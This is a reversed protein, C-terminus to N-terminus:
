RKAMTDIISAIDAVDVSGDGNVDAATAFGSGVTGAMVDIVAAIDAVDVSGDGNVDGEVGEVMPYYYLYCDDFIDDPTTGGGSYSLRIYDEYPLFEGVENKYLGRSAAEKVGAINCPFYVTKGGLVKTISGAAYPKDSPCDFVGLHKKTTGGCQLEGTYYSVGEQCDQWTRELQANYYSALSPDDKQSISNFGVFGDHGLVYYGAPRLSYDVDFPTLKELEAKVPTAAFRPKKKCFVITRSDGQQTGNQFFYRMYDHTRSDTYFEVQPTIGHSSFDPLPEWGPEDVKVSGEIAKGHTISGLERVVEEGSPLGTIRLRAKLAPDGAWQSTVKYRLTCPSGYKVLGLADAGDLTYEINVNPIRQREVNITGEGKIVSGTTVDAVRILNKGYDLQFEYYPVLVQATGGGPVEALVNDWATFGDEGTAGVYVLGKFLQSGNNKLTLIINGCGPYTDLAWVPWDTTVATLTLNNADTTYAGITPM